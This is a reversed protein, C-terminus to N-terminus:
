PEWRITGAFSWRRQPNWVGAVTRDATV